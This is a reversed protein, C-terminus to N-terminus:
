LWTSCSNTNARELQLLQRKRDMGGAYGTLSGNSGIVRHCPVIIGIPNHGIAGGVAQASMHELAREHAVQRAIDKYTTTQGYPITQLLQWVSIRFPSDDFQLPPTFDPERGKFYSDLWARTQEFVPLCQHMSEGFLTTGFHKQGEFWLGTLHSGNSSLTILGLPSRYYQIYSM